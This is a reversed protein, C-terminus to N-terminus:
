RSGSTKLFNRIQRARAAWSYQAARARGAKAQRRARPYDGLARAIGAALAAPDNPTVLTAVTEDLVERLSPLDSAVVPVGSGLYEFLKLPSTYEESMPNGAKNPLVAVDAARLYWPIEGPPCHARLLVNTLYFFRKHIQAIEEPSGGVLVFQHEPLRAAAALLVEVGKWEYLFFSGTYLVIKKDRPLGLRARAEELSATLSYQAIDVGDPAVLIKEPPIGQAVLRAKTGATLTILARARRWCLDHWYSVRVPLNHIELAGGRWLLGALWERSYFAVGRRFLTYLRAVLLFSALQAVFALPGFLGALPLLDLCPLKVLRFTRAVSYYEFPDQRLRNFRRPVVLEVSVGEGALAECTKMIQLGHAKETPLRANAIYVLRM